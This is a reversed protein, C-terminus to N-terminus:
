KPQKVPWIGAASIKNSKGDPVLFNVQIQDGPKLKSLSYIGEGVYVDITGPAGQMQVTRSYSDVSVVKFVGNAVPNAVGSTQNRPLEERRQGTQGLSPASATLAAVFLVFSVFSLSTRM